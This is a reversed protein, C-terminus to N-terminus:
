CAAPCQTVPYKCAVKNVIPEQHSRLYIFLYTLLYANQKAYTLRMISVICLRYMRNSCAFVISKIEESFKQGPWNGHDCNKIQEVVLDPFDQLSTSVMGADSISAMQFLTKDFVTALEILVDNVSRHSLLVTSQM